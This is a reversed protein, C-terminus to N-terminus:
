QVSGEDGRLVLIGGASRVLNRLSTRQWPHGPNSMVEIVYRRAPPVEGVRRCWRLMARIASSGAHQLSELDLELQGHGGAARHIVDFVEDLDDERADGGITGEIRVRRVGGQPGSHVRFSGGDHVIRLMTLIM